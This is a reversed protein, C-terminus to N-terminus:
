SRRLSRLMTRSGRTHTSASSYASSQDRNHHTRASPSARTSGSACRYPASASSAAFYGCYVARLGSPGTTAMVTVRHVPHDAASPRSPQRCTM